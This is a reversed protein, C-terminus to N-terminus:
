PCNTTHKGTLRLHSWFIANAVLRAAVGQLSPPDCKRDCSRMRSGVLPHRTLTRDKRVGGAAAAFCRDQKGSFAFLRNRCLMPM